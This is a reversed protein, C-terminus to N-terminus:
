CKPLTRAISRRVYGHATTLELTNLIVGPRRQKAILWMVIRQGHRGKKCLTAIPLLMIWDRYRM